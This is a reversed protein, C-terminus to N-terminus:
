LRGVLEGYVPKLRDFREQWRDEIAGRSALVDGLSALHAHWGAGTGVASPRTLGRHDLVVFAGEGSPSIEVRLVSEINSEDWTAEFVRPPDWAVVEGRAADEGWRLEFRGGVRPEVVAEAFLWRRISDPETCAAWVEEPTAAYRREYRLGAHEGEARVEGLGLIGRLQELHRQWGEGYGTAVARELGRHDVVLRTGGDEEEIEFRVLSAPEGPYNWEVELLRGPEVARVRGNMRATSAAPFDLQFAGGERPEVRAAPALWRGLSAPDTLAAWLEGPTADYRRQVRVGGLNV